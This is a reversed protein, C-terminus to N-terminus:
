TPWARMGPDAVAGKTYAHRKTNQPGWRCWMQLRRSTRGDCQLLARAAPRAEALPADDLRCAERSRRGEEAVNSSRARMWARCRECRCCLSSGLRPRCRSAAAAAMAARRFSGTLGTVQPLPPPPRPPQQPAMLQVGTGLCEWRALLQRIDGPPPMPGHFPLCAAGVSGSTHPRCWFSAAAPSPTGEWGGHHGRLGAAHPVAAGSAGASGGGEGGGGGVVRAGGGGGRCSCSPQSRLSKGM